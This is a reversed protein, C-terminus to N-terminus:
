VNRCLDAVGERRMRIGGMPGAGRWEPSRQELPQVAADLFRRQECRCGGCGRAPGNGKSEGTGQAFAQHGLHSRPCLRDLFGSALVTIRM